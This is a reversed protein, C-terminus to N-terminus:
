GCDEQFHGSLCKKIAPLLKEYLESKGIYEDIHENKFVNRFGETEFMTLVIIKCTPIVKKIEGAAEVGHMNQLRLDTIVIQPKEKLAVEVGEEGSAAEFINLDINQKSLYNKVRQRFDEHDEIILLKVQM